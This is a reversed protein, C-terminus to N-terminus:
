INLWYRIKFNIQLKKNDCTNTDMDDKFVIFFDSMPKFRWQLMSNVNMNSKQTNYQILSTWILKKNFSIEAQAAALHYNETGFAGPFVLRCYDYDV